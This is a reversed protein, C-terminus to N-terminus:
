AVWATQPDEFDQLLSLRREIGTRESRADTQVRVGGARVKADQSLCAEDRCSRLLAGARAPRADEVLGGGLRGVFAREGAVAEEGLDEGAGEAGLRVGASAGFRGSPRPACVEDAFRGWEGRDRLLFCEVLDDTEVLLVTELGLEPLGVAPLLQHQFAAGELVYRGGVLGDDTRDVETEDPSRERFERGADFGIPELGEGLWAGADAVECARFPRSGSRM